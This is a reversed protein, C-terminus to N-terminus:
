ATSVERCNFDKNQTTHYFIREIKPSTAENLKIVAVLPDGIILEKFNFFYIEQRAGGKYGEM